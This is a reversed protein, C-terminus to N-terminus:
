RTWVPLAFSHSRHVGIDAAGDLADLVMAEQTADTFIHAVHRTLALPM